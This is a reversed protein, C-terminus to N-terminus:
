GRGKLNRLDGIFEHIIAWHELECDLSVAEWKSILIDISEM